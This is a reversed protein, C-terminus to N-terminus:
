HDQEAAERKRKDELAQQLGQSLMEGDIEDPWKSGNETWIQGPQRRPRAIQEGDAM